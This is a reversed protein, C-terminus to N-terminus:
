PGVVARVTVMGHKRRVTWEDSLQDVISMGRGAPDTPAFHKLSPTSAGGGDTIDVVVHDDSVEWSVIIGEVSGNRRVPRAHVISNSVLETLVSLTNDVLRPLLDRHLLDDRVARRALPVSSVDAAFWRAQAADARQTPAVVSSAM